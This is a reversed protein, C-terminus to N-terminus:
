RQVTRYMLDSCGSPDQGYLDRQSPLFSLVCVSFLPSFRADQQSVKRFKQIDAQYQSLPHQAAKYEEGLKYPDLTLLNYYEQVFKEYHEVIKRPGAMNTALVARIREKTSVISDEESRAVRLASVGEIGDFLQTTISVSDAQLQEVTIGEAPAESDSFPSYPPLCSPDLPPFGECSGVAHDLMSSLSSDIEDMGPVIRIHNGSVVLKVFFAPM